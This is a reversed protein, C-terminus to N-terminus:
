GAAAPSASSRVRIPAAFEEPLKMDVVRIGSLGKISYAGGIAITM